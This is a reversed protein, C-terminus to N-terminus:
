RIAMPKNTLCKKMAAKWQTRLETMAAENTTYAIQESQNHKIIRQVRLLQEPDTADAIATLLWEHGIM